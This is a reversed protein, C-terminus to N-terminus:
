EEIELESPKLLSNILNFLAMIEIKQKSLQIKCEYFHMNNGSDDSEIDTRKTEGDMMTKGGWPKRKELLLKAISERRLRLNETERVEQNDNM